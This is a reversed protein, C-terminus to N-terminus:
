TISLPRMTRSPLGASSSASSEMRLAYMPAHSSVAGGSGSRPKGRERAERPLPVVGESRPPGQEADRTQAAGSKHTADAAIREESDLSVSM